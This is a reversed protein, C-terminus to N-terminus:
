SGALRGAPVLVAVVRHRPLAAQGADGVVGLQGLLDAAEVLQEVRGSRLPLTLRSESICSVISNMSSSSPASGSFKVASSNPVRGDVPELLGDVGALDAREGAVLVGLVEDVPLMTAQSAQDPSTMWSWNSLGSM